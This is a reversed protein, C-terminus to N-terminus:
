RRPLTRGRSETCMTHDEILMRVSQDGSTVDLGVTVGGECAGTGGRRLPVVPQRAVWGTEATSGANRASTMDVRAEFVTSQGGAHQTTVWSAAVEAQGRQGRGRKKRAAKSNPKQQRQRAAEANTRTPTHRWPETAQRYEVTSLSMRTTSAFPQTAQTNSRGLSGVGGPVGPTSRSGYNFTQYGHM